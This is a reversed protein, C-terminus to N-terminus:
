RTEGAPAYTVPEVNSTSPPVESSPGPGNRSISPAYLSAAGEGYAAEWGLVVVAMWVGDALLLHALQMWVPALLAVNLLGAGLQLFVFAAVARSLAHVRPSPRVVRLLGATAFVLAAAGLAIMPHLLRLRVFAHATPSLDQALGERLTRAPFLTDGLAAVAGSAGVALLALLAVAIAAKVIRAHERPPSSAAGPSPAAAPFSATWATLVLAGLLLFTNGLHLIMSLARKMSADHAVLEFLVLAAGILAEFVIFVTAAGALRRVRHGASLARVAGVFLAVVLLLALGSTLRHSLEIVTALSQPRPVVEGNCLPWHRGCGAGSGTARVFAGWAIVLLNYALVVWAFRAFRRSVMTTVAPTM